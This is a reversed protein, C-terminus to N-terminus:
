EGKFEKSSIVTDFLGIETPEHKTFGSCSLSSDEYRKFSFIASNMLISNFLEWNTMKLDGKGM